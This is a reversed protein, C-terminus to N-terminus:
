IFRVIGFGDSYTYGLRGAKFAKNWLEKLAAISPQFTFVKSGRKLKDMFEEYTINENEYFETSDINIPMPLLYIGREKAKEKNLSCNTDTSIVEKGDKKGKQISLINYSLNVAIDVGFM